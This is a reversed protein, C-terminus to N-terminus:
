EKDSVTWYHKTSLYARWRTIAANDGWTATASQGM